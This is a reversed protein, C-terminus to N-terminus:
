RTYCGTQGARGPTPLEHNSSLSNFDKNVSGDPQGSHAGLMTGPACRLPTCTRDPPATRPAASGDSYPSMSPARLDLMRATAPPPEPM